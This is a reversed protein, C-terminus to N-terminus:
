RGWRRRALRGQEPDNQSQQDGPPTLHPQESLGQPVLAGAPPGPQADAVDGLLLRRARQGHRHKVRHEHAPPPPPERPGPPGPGRVPLRGPRPDLPQAQTGQRLPVHPLQRAPLALPHCEGPGQRALRGQENEVLGGGVQIPARRSKISYMAAKWRSAPTVVTNTM